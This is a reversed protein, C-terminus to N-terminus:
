INIKSKLDQSYITFISNNQFTDFNNEQKKGTECFPASWDPTMVVVPPFGLPFSARLKDHPDLTDWTEWM